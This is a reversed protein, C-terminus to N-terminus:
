PDVRTEDLMELSSIRWMGGINRSNEAGSLNIWDAQAIPTWFGLIGLMLGITLLRHLGKVVFFRM